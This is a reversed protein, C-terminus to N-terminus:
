KGHVGRDAHTWIHKAENIAEQWPTGAALHVNVVTSNSPQASSTNQTAVDNTRGNAAARIVTRLQDDRFIWEPDSSANRVTTNPDLRVGNDATKIEGGQGYWGHAKHFALANIPDGYRGQIYKLGWEAQGTATGEVPGNVSTMKQFLGRASSSPNAANPNWSSEENIIESLADWEAGKDWGYRAAVARVQAVVDGSAAGTGTGMHVNAIAWNIAGNIADTMDKQGAVVPQGTGFFKQMDSAMGLAPAMQQKVYAGVDFATGGPADIYQGGAQPLFFQMPFNSSGRASPSMRVAPPTAEFAVGNMTGAMHGTQVGVTFASNLGPLFGAAGHGPSFDDTTYLRQNPPRGMLTNQIASWLGSCDFGQPGVAGWVYPKGVQARAYSMANDIAGGVAMQPLLGAGMGEPSTFTGGLSAQRARELNDLGGFDQVMKKPMVFEGTMGWFPVDDQNPQGGLIPGGSAFQPLPKMPRNLAFFGDVTNWARVLGANFPWDIMWHIPDATYGKMRDFSVSVAQAFNDAATSTASMGTRMFPLHTNTIIGLQNGVTTQMNVFSGNSGNMLQTISGQMSVSAADVTTTNTQWNAGINKTLEDFTKTLTTGSLDKLSNLTPLTSSNVIDALPQLGKERLNILQKTFADADVNGLVTGDATRKPVVDKGLVNATVDLISQARTSSPDHPIYSENFQSNDGILTATNPPVINAIGAPLIGGTAMGRINIGGTARVITAGPILGPLGNVTGSSPVATSIPMHQAQTYFDFWAKKANNLADGLQNVQDRAAIAGPANIPVTGMDRPLVLIAHGFNDTQIRAGQAAWAGDDISAALIQLQPPLTNGAAHALAILQEAMAQSEAKSKTASDASANLAAAQQGASVVMDYQAKELDRTAAEVAKTDGPSNKLVDNLNNQADTVRAQSEAFAFNSDIQSMITTRLENLRDQHEKAADAAGQQEDKLASLASDLVRAAAEAQQSGAGWKTVAQTHTDTALAVQIQARQLNNSSQYQQNLSTIVSDSKPIFAQLYSGAIPIYQIWQAFSSNGSDMKQRVDDIAQGQNLIQDTATGTSTVFTQWVTTFGAVALVAIGLKSGLGGVATSLKSSSAEAKGTAAVSSNAATNVDDIAKKAGGFRATINSPLFLDLLKGWGAFARDTSTGMELLGKGLSTFAAYALTAYGLFAVLEPNLKSLWNIFDALGNIIQVVTGGVPAWAKALNYGAEVLNVFMDWLVKAKDGANQFFAELEGSDRKGQVWTDFLAASTEVWHTFLELTPTATVYLSRTADAFSFGALGLDTLMRTNSTMIRAFDQTWPGSTVMKSGEDALQGLVRGTESFETKMLPQLDLVRRLGSEVGPIMASQVSDGLAILAPRADSMIFNVFHQAEPTLKSMYYALQNAALESTRSTKTIADAVAEQARLATRQADDEQQASTARVRSLNLEADGVAQAGSIRARKLAEEADGVSQAASIRTKALSDEANIQSQTASDVQRKAAVVQASGEIGDKTAQAQEDTLQKVRDQAEKYSQQAQRNQLDIKDLSEGTIGAAQANTLAQQADIMTYYAQEQALNADVVSNSLDLNAQAADKRAKTLAEQAYQSQTDANALAQEASKIQDTSTAYARALSQQADGIQQATSSSSRALAKEADGIQQTNQVVVRSLSRYADDRANVASEITATNDFTSTAMKKDVNIAAGIADSIGGFGLKLAALGQGATAGAAAVGALGIGAAPALYAISTLGAVVLGIIGIARTGDSGIHVTANSGDLRKRQDEVERMKLMARLTDADVNITTGGFGKAQAKLEDIDKKAQGTNAGVTLDASSLGQIYKRLDAVDRRAQGVNGGISLDTTALGKVYNKFETVDRRAQAVNLSLGLQAPSSDSVTRKAETISTRLQKPDLTLPISVSDAAFKRLDAQAERIDRQLQDRSLTATAQIAGANFIPGTM